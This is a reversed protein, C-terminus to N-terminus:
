VKPIFFHSTQVHGSHGLYRQQLPLPRNMFSTMLTELNKGGGGKM